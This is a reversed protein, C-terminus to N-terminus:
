TFGVREIIGPLERLRSIRFNLAPTDGRSSVALIAVRDFWRGRLTGDSSM